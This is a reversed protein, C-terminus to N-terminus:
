HGEHPAQSLAALTSKANALFHRGEIPSAEFTQIAAELLNIANQVEGIQATCPALALQSVATLYHNQGLGQLRIQVARRGLEVCEQLEGNARHTDALGTLLYALRPHDPGLSDEALSLNAQTLRVAEESKGKLGLVMALNHRAHITEMHAPGYIESDIQLAQRALAEAEGEADSPALETLAVSLGKLAAARERNTAETFPKLAQLAQRAATEAEPFKGELYHLSSQTVRARALGVRDSTREHLRISRSLVEIGQEFRELDSLM